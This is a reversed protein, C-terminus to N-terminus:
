IETSDGYLVKGTEVSMSRITLKRQSGSGTISFTVITEAGLMKGISVYADDSVEGSSQYQKEAEIVNLNQRDLVTIKGAAILTDTIERIVVDVTDTESRSINLL